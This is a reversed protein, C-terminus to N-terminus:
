RVEIDTICWSSETKSLRVSIDDRPDQETSSGSEPQSDVETPQELWGKYDVTASGFGLNNLSAQPEEGETGLEYFTLSTIDSAAGPCFETARFSSGDPEEVIVNNVFLFADDAVKSSYWGYFVTPILFLATLPALIVIPRISRAMLTEEAGDGGRREDTM